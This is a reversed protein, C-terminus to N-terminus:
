RLTVSVSKPHLHQHWRTGSPTATSRVTAFSGTRTSGASVAVFGSGRAPHYGSALVPALIGALSAAYGAAITDHKTSQAGAVLEVLTAHAGQTYSHTATITAVHHGDASPRITGARITMDSATVRGTLSGATQVIGSPMALTSGTGVTIKGANSIPYDLTAHVASSGSGAPVLIAGGHRVGVVAGDARNGYGTGLQPNHGVLHLANAVYVAANNAFDVTTSTLTTPSALTIQTQDYDSDGGIDRESGTGHRSIHVALAGSLTLHGDLQGEQFAFTGHQGAPTTVTAPQWPHHPIAPVGALLFSHNGALRLTTAHTVTTTGTLAVSTEDDILAVGGGTFTDGGALTSARGGAVDLTAGAPISVTGASTFGAEMTATPGGAGPVVRMTAGHANVLDVANAGGTVSTGGDLQLVGDNDFEGPSGPIDLVGTALTMTGKNTVVTDVTGSDNDLRRGNDAPGDVVTTFGPAFTLNGLLHGAEFDLTGAGGLEGASTSPPFATGPYDALDSLWNDADLLQLTTGAGLTTTGGLLCWTGDRFKVVGGSSSSTVSADTWRSYSHSNIDLTHGALDLSSGSDLEVDMEATVDGGLTGTAGSDLELKAIDDSGSSGNSALDASGVTAHGTVAINSEGNALLISTGPEVVLNDTTLTDVASGEPGYVVSGSITTTGDVTISGTWQGGGDVGSIDLDHSVTIGADGAHFFVDNNPDEGHITLDCVSQPGNVFYEGDSGSSSITAMDDAGPTGNPSWNLPDGWTSNDGQGVWEYSTGSCSAAVADPAGVVFGAAAVVLAVGAALAGGRRNGISRVARQRDM